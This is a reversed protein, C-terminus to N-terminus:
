YLDVVEVLRVRVESALDFHQPVAAVGVYDPHDVVKRLALGLGNHQLATLYVQFVVHILSM